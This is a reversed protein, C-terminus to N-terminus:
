IIADPSKKKKKASRWIYGDVIFHHLNITAVTMLMAAEVPFGMVLYIQPWGCFLFLGVLMSVVYFWGVHYSTSQTNEPRKNMDNVHFIVVIVIYQLSHFISAWFWADSFSLLVWWLGNMALLVWAILPLTKGKDQLRFFVIVPLAFILVGLVVQIENSYPVQPFALVNQFWGIGGTDDCFLARIFPLLCIGWFLRKETNDLFIGSRYCYMLALGYAQMSYHYPSWTIYLAWLHDGLVKPWMICLTTVVIAIVPLIYFAFNRSPIEGPKTYLRVTSAAFHTYNLFLYVILHTRRETPTISPDLYAWIVFPISLAAGILLYDLWPNLFCKGILPTWDKPTTSAVQTAM